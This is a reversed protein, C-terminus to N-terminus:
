KESEQLLLKKEIDEGDVGDAVRLYVTIIIDSYGNLSGSDIIYERDSNHRKEYHWDIMDAFMGSKSLFSFNKIFTEKGIEDTQKSFKYSIEVKIVQLLDGTIVKNLQATTTRKRM